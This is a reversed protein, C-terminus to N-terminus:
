KSDTKFKKWVGVQRETCVVHPKIKRTIFSEYESLRLALLKIEFETLADDLMSKSGIRYLGIGKRLLHNSREIQKALNSMGFGDSTDDWKHEGDIEICLLYYSKIPDENIRELVWVQDLVYPLGGINVSDTWVSSYIARLILNCPVTGECGDCDILPKDKRTEGFSKAAKWANDEAGKDDIRSIAPKLPKGFKAVLNYVEQHSRFTNATFGTVPIGAVDLNGNRIADIIGDLYPAKLFHSYDRSPSKSGTRFIEFVPLVSRAVAPVEFFSFDPPMKHM